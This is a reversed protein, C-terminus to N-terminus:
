GQLVRNHSPPNSLSPSKIKSKKLNVDEIHSFKAVGLTIEANCRQRLDEAFWNKEKGRTEKTKGPFMGDSFGANIIARKQTHSFHRSDILWHANPFEETIKNEIQTDGDSTFFKLDIQEEKCVQATKRM